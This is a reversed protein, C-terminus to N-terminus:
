LSTFLMGAFIGAGPMGGVANLQLMYLITSLWGALGVFLVIVGACSSGRAYVRASARRLPSM